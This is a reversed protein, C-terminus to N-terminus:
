ILRSLTCGAQIILFDRCVTTQSTCETHASTIHTPSSRTSIITVHDRLMHSAGVVDCLLISNYYLAKWVVWTWILVCHCDYPLGALWHWCNLFCKTSNDFLKMHFFQRQQDPSNSSWLIQLKHVKDVNHQTTYSVCCDLCDSWRKSHTGKSDTERHQTSVSHPRFM